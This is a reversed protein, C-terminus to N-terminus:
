EKIEATPKYKFTEKEFAFGRRYCAYGAHNIVPVNKRYLVWYGEMDRVTFNRMTDGFFRMTKRSFFFGEPNHELYLRKLQQPTM